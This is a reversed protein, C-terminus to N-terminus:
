TASGGKWNTDKKKRKSYKSIIVTIALPIGLAAADEVAAPFESEGKAREFM